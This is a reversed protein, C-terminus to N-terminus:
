YSKDIKDLKDYITCDKGLLVSIDIFTKEIPRFIIEGSNLINKVKVAQEYNNILDFIITYEHIKYSTVGWEYIDFKNKRLKDVAKSALRNKSSANIVEIKVKDNQNQALHSIDKDENLFEIIEMLGAPELEIRNRKNITPIDAFQITNMDINKIKSYLFFSDSLKFNTILYNGADLFKIFDVLIYRNTNAIVYKIIKIMYVISLIYEKNNVFQEFYNNGLQKIIKKEDFLKVFLQLTKTNSLVYYNIKLTNDLLLEIEKKIFDVQEDEKQSFFMENLTQSKKKKQLITIKDNICLVKLSKTKHCYQFLVLKLTNQNLNDFGKIAVLVNINKHNKISYSINSINNLYQSM